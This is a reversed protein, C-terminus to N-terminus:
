GLIRDILGLQLAEQASLETAESYAALRQVSQGTHRALLGNVTECHNQVAKLYAQFDMGAMDVVPPGVVFRTGAKAVRRGPAGAAVLVAAAYEVRGLAVTALPYSVKQMAEYVSLIAVLPGGKSNVYLSAPRTPDCALAQLQAVVAQAVPETVDGAYIIREALLKSLNDSM